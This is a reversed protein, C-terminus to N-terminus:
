DKSVPGRLPRRRSHLLKAYLDGGWGWGLVFPVVLFPTLFLPDGVVRAFMNMPFPSCLYAVTPPGLLITFWITLSVISWTAVSVGELM